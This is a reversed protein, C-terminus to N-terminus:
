YYNILMCFDALVSFGPIFRGCLRWLGYNKDQYFALGKVENNLVRPTNLTHKQSFGLPNIAPKLLTLSGTSLSMILFGGCQTTRLFLKRNWLFIINSVNAKKSDNAYSLGGEKTTPM